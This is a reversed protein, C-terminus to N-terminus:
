ILYVQLDFFKKRKGKGRGDKQPWGLITVAEDSPKIRTMRYLNKFPNSLGAKKIGELAKPNAERYKIYKKTATKLHKSIHRSNQFEGFARKTSALNVVRHALKPDLHQLAAQAVIRLNPKKYKYGVEFLTGDADSISSMFTTIVKLDKSDLKTIVYSTFHALFFPDNHALLSFKELVDSLRDEQLKGKSYIHKCGELLFNYIELRETNSLSSFSLSLGCQVFYEVLLKQREYHNDISWYSSFSCDWKPYLGSKTVPM